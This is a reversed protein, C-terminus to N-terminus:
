FPCPEEEVTPLPMEQQIYGERAKYKGADILQIVASDFREKIKKDMYIYTYYSTKGDKETKKSPFNVWRRSNSDFLTCNRYTVGWEDIVVDFEAAISGKGVIRYNTIQM